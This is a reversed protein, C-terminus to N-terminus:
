ENVLECPQPERGSSRRVARRSSASSRLKECTRARRPPRRGVRDPSQIASASCRTVGGRRRSQVTNGAQHGELFVNRWRSDPRCRCRRARHPAHIKKLSFFCIFPSASVASSSEGFLSPDSVRWPRSMSSASQAREVLEIRQCAVRSEQTKMSGEPSRCPRM